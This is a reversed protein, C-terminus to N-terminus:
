REATLVGNDSDDGCQCLKYSVVEATVVTQGAPMTVQGSLTPPTGSDYNLVNDIYNERRFKYWITFDEDSPGGSTITFRLIRRREECSCGWADYYFIPAGESGVSMTISVSKAADNECVTYITAM